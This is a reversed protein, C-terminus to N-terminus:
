LTQISDSWTPLEQQKFTNFQQLSESKSLEQYRLSSSYNLHKVGILLSAAARHIEIYLAKSKTYLKYVSIRTQMKLSEEKHYLVYHILVMLAYSLGHSTQHRKSCSNFCEDPLYPRGNELVFSNIYKM